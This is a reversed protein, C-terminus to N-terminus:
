LPLRLRCTNITLKLALFRIVQVQQGDEDLRGFHEELKSNLIASFLTM